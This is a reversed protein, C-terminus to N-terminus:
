ATGACVTVAEAYAANLKKTEAEALKKFVASMGHVRDPHNQKILRKYAQKVDEVAASPSVGLVEFWTEEEVMEPVTPPADEAAAEESDRLHILQEPDVGAFERLTRIEPEHAKCYESRRVVYFVPLTFAVLSAAMWNAVLLRGELTEWLLFTDFVINAGLNVGLNVGLAWSTEAYYFSALLVTLALLYCAFSGAVAFKASIVHICTRCRQIPRRRLRLITSRLDRAYIELEELEKGFQKKFQARSRWWAFWGPERPERERDIEKHRKAVKAYLLVARQLEIAELKSLGFDSRFRRASRSYHVCSLFLVPLAAGLAILTTNGPAFALVESLLEGVMM